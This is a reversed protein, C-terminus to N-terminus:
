MKKNLSNEIEDKIIKRLIEQSKAYDDNYKINFENFNDIIKDNFFYKEKCELYLTSNYYSDFKQIKYIVEKFDKYNIKKISLSLQKKLKKRKIRENTIKSFKLVIVPCAKILGTLLIGASFASVIVVISM